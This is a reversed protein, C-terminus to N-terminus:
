PLQVPAIDFYPTGPVVISFAVPPAGLLPWVELTYPGPPVYLYYMGDSGSYATGSRGLSPSNVTVAVGIAPYPGYPGVRVIRGRLTVQQAVVPAAPIVAFVLVTIAVIRHLLRSVLCWVKM